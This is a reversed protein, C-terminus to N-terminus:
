QTPKRVQGFMSSYGVAFGVWVCLGALVIVVSDSLEQTMREAGSSRTVSWLARAPKKIKVQRECFRLSHQLFIM